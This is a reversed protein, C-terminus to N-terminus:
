QQYGRSVIKNLAACAGSSVLPRTKIAPQAPFQPNVFYASERLTNGVCLAPVTATV